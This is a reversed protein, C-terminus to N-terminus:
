STKAVGSSVPSTPVDCKITTGNGPKSQISITGQLSSVIEHMNVLGLSSHKKDKDYFLSTNFGKGNDIIVLHSRFPEIDLDVTIETCQGHRIANATAEKIIRYFGKCISPNLFEIKGVPNFNVKIQYLSAVGKLYTTIEDIFTNSDDYRPSLRYILIRIEKATKSAIDRITNLNETFLDPMGKSKRMLSDIGYVISFLNQSVTDHIENAIRNQEEVVLLKDAFIESKNREVVIASLKALVTLTNIIEETPTMLNHQLAALLGLSRVGSVVPICILNGSVGEAADDIKKILIKNDSRIESWSDLLIPLWSDEPFITRKGKVSYIYNDKSASTIEGQNELWYIVKECGTLSKAYAAFIDVITKQDEVSSITEVAEYLSSLHHLTLETQRLSYLRQIVQECFQLFLSLKEPYINVKTSGKLVAVFIGSIRKEDVRIPVAIWNRNKESLIPKYTLDQWIDKLEEIAEIITFNERGRNGILKFNIKNSLEKPTIPNKLALVAVEDFPFVSECVAVLKIFVNEESKMNVIERQFNTLSQIIAHNTTLELYSSYLEEQELKLRNSQENSISIIKATFQLSLILIILILINDNDLALMEDISTEHGLVIIESLNIIVAFLIFLSWTYLNSILVACALLPNLALWIFPGNMGGTYNLLVAVLFVELLMLLSLHRKSNLYRYNLFVLILNILFLFILFAGMYLYNTSADNNKFIYFLSTFLLTFFRFIYLASPIRDFFDAGQGNQSFINRLNSGLNSEM